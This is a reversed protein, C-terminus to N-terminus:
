WREIQGRSRWRTATYLTTLLKAPRPLVSQYMISSGELRKHKVVGSSGPVGGLQGAPVNTGVSIRPINYNTNLHRDVVEVLTLGRAPITAASRIPKSSPALTRWRMEEVAFRDRYTQSPDPDRLVVVIRGTTEPRAIGIGFDLESCPM